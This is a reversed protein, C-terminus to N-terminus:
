QTRGRFSGSEAKESKEEETRYVKISKRSPSVLDKSWIWFVPADHIWLSTVPKPNDRSKAWDNSTTPTKKPATLPQNQQKVMLEPQWSIVRQLELNEWREPSSILYSLAWKHTNIAYPKKGGMNTAQHKKIYTHCKNGLLNTNCSSSKVCLM